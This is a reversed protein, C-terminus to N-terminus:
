KRRITILGGAILLLLWGFSGGSSKKEIEPTPESVNAEVLNKITVTTATSVEDFSDSIFVEFTLREDNAVSPAVFTVTDSMEGALSINSGSIQVWRYSLSDNEDDIVDVTLTVSDGEDVAQEPIDSVVPVSNNLITVKATDSVTHTGDSVELQLTIVEDQNVRPATITLNESTVGTLTLTTGDLQTWSYTIEDGENDNVVASISGSLTERVILDTLSEIEPVQNLAITQDAFQLYEIGYITDKGSDATDISNVTVGGTIYEIIYDAKNGIYTATDSGADGQIYDDGLGGFFRDDGANGILSNNAENGILEDSGSGGIANEIVVGYAITLNNKSRNLHEGGVTQDYFGTSNSAISSFAGPNLDIVNDRHSTEVVITDLGATDYIVQHFDYSDDYSYISDDINVSDNKGYLYQLALIDYKKYATPHYVESSTSGSLRSMVSFYKSNENGTFSSKLGLIRGIDRHIIGMANAYDHKYDIDDRMEHQYDTKRTPNLYRLAHSESFIVTKTYWYRKDEAENLPPINGGSVSNAGIRFVFDSEERTFKEVFTIGTLKSIDDMVKVIADKEYQFFDRQVDDSFVYGLDYGTFGYYITVPNGLPQAYNWRRSELPLMGELINEENLTEGKSYLHETNMDITEAAVASSVSSLLGLAAVFIINKM